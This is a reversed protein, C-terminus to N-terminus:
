TSVRRYKRGNGKNKAKYTPTQAHCNPCLLRLNSSLNNEHRGDIHDVELTIPQELWNHLGCVACKYGSRRSLAKRISVNTSFVNNEGNLFRNYRDGVQVAQQCANSCYYGLRSSSPITSKGCNRCGSTIKKLPPIESSM